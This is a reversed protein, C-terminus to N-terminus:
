EQVRQTLDGEAVPRGVALGKLDDLQIQQDYYAQKLEAVEHRLRQVEGVLPEIEQARNQSGHILEAMKRQHHTVIAIIPIGFVMVAGVLPIIAQPFAVM